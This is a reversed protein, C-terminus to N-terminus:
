HLPTPDQPSRSAPKRAAAAPQAPPASSIKRLINQEAAKLTPIDNSMQQQRVALRDADGFRRRFVHGIRRRSRVPSKL